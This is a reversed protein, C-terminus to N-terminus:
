LCETGRSSSGAFSPLYWWAPLPGFPPQQLWEVAWGGFQVGSEYRLSPGSVYYPGGPLWPPADAPM